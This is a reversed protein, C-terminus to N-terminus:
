PPTGHVLEALAVRLEALRPPKSLVRDVYEPRGSESLLRNGWGTLLLVPVQPSHAKVAAAVKRGDMHPMGLDTVVASFREGRTEAARFAEIGREGGDATVVTHGERELTDRLSRLVVPDDDIFLLRLPPLPKPAAYAASAEAGPGTRAPFILSIMTGHGVQSEVQIEAGHRELMGYVMALGLGTGREGKTTFFPELCRARTDEDMGVGTDIVDIRVYGSDAERSCLKLTGGDPMADVANLILNTLADRIETEAGMIWPLNPPVETELRIVMGREQPMDHWRAHTLDIAQDIVQSLTVPAHARQPERQRYFEKMRAVTNAVGEIARQIIVLYDKAQASLSTDRELLSEVYLAAPSLANNIDHAIGSAMQGLARLREQQMVRQQTQRLDDYAAQLAGYLEAQHMALAVHESLQRLFECEGSSFNGAGRRAAVLVGFVTSEVVLPAMVLSGLGAAALRRSFPYDGRALDPEYVLKGRVGRSLGNEDVEITAHEPMALQAALSQSKEGACAVSLRSRAPDYLCVCGFDIPLDEELSRIVVQLISQPDQRDAIARTTRDLLSMRELQTRLKQESRKYDEIDTNSGFWKVIHGASDRLPVARTKFWRYVGDARRIRFEVDFSDGRVTAATWEAQVRTRDEPHLHEAWGSGLQESEARGTYAVWQRSLYDCWGDPRCTWVLHPLSETLTRFREESERLAEEARKRETIDTSIGFIAYTKGKADRLPCKVSVYTHPGDSQPVTEEETLAQNALAVREDMARFADAADKTFIAYDTRGLVTGRALQFIDEYRRNVLLYRGEIDKVYIVATSNDSIALLLQESSRTMEEAAQRDGIEKTLRQNAAELQATREAVRAELAENIRRIESPSPLRLAQPVLKVLLIATPVSALATVAKISGSLWYTPHWITWIEMLHTAGCAVIFIAFCVFMWNFQLDARKRVFYLLTFPISFYALTILADSVLHLWLVGPRWLYCMGHPMFGDSSLFSHIHNGM